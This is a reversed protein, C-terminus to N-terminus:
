DVYNSPDYEMEVLATLVKDAFDRWRGIYYGADDSYNFDDSNFKPFELEYTFIYKGNDEYTQVEVKPMYQSDKRPSLSISYNDDVELNWGVNYAATQLEEFGAPVDTASKIYRKM